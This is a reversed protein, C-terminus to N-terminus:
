KRANGDIGLHERFESELMPFLRNSTNVAKIWVQIVKDAVVPKFDKPDRYAVNSFNSGVYYVLSLYREIENSIVESFYIRKVRFEEQSEAAHKALEGAKTFEKRESLSTILYREWKRPNGDEPIRYEEFLEPHEEQLRFHYALYSSQQALSSLDSYVNAITEAQTDFIKSYQHFHKRNLLDIEAKLTESRRQLATEFLKKFVWVFLGLVTANSIVSIAITTALESM